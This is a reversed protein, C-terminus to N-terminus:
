KKFISPGGYTLTEHLRVEVRQLASEVREGWREKQMRGEKFVGYDGLRSRRSSLGPGGVRQRRVRTMPVM